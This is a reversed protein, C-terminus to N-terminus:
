DIIQSPQGVTWNIFNVGSQSIQRNTSVLDEQPNSSNLSQARTIVQWILLNEDEGPVKCLYYGSSAVKIRAISDMNKQHYEVVTSLEAAQKRTLFGEETTKFQFQDIQKTEYDFLGHSDRHWTILRMFLTPVTKILSQPSDKSNSNQM